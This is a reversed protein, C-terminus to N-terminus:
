ALSLSQVGGGGVKQDQVVNSFSVLRITFIGAHKM